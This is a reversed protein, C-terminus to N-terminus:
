IRIDDNVDCGFCKLCKTKVSQVVLAIQLGISFVTKCFDAIAAM